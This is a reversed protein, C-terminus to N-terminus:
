HSQALVSRVERLLREAGVADAQDYIRRVRGQPDVIMMVDEHTIDYDVDARQALPNAVIPQPDTGAAALAPTSAPASTGGGPASDQVKQYNVHYGGTVIRRIQTPRGTLYQWRPDAPNWGYERLFARMQRPGTGGPDVDFAVVEVRGALPTAALLNEFGVLHAAIM